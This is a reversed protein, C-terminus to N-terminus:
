QYQSIVFWVAGIALMTVLGWGFFRMLAVTKESPEDGGMRGEHQPM